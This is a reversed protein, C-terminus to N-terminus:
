AIHRISSRIALACPSCIPRILRRAGLELLAEDGRKRVDAIIGRVTEQLAADPGQAESTLAANIESALERDTELIKM